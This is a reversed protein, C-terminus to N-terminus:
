PGSKGDSVIGEEWPSMNGRMIDYVFQDDEGADRTSILVIEDGVLKPGLLFRLETLIVSKGNNASEKKAISECEKRDIPESTDRTRSLM